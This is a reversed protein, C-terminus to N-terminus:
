KISNQQPTIANRKVIEKIREQYVEDACEFCVGGKAQQLWKTLTVPSGCRNCNITKTM